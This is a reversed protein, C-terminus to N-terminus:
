SNQPKNDKQFHVEQDYDSIQLAIENLKEEKWISKEKMSHKMNKQQAAQRGKLVAHELGTKGQRYLTIM